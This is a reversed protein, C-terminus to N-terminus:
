LLAEKVQSSKVQVQQDKKIHHTLTHTIIHSSKVQGPLTRLTDSLFHTVHHAHTSSILRSGTTHAQGLYFDM